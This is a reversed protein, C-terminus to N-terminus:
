RSHPPQLRPSGRAGTASFNIDSFGTVRLRPSSSAEPMGHDHAAAPEPVAALEQPPVAPQASAPARTELESVRKELKDLLGNLEDLSAFAIRSWGGLVPGSRGTSAGGADESADDLQVREM